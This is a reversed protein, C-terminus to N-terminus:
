CRELCTPFQSNKLLPNWTEIAIVWFTHSIGVQIVKLFSKASNQLMPPSIVALSRVINFNSLTVMWVALCCNQTVNSALSPHSVYNTTSFSAMPSAIVISISKSKKGM